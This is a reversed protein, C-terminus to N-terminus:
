QAEKLRAALRKKARHLRSRITGVPVGVIAAVDEYRLEEFECLVIVERLEPRLAEMERAVLAVAEKRTLSVLPDDAPSEIEDLEEAEVHARLM